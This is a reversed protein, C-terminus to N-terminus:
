ITGKEVAIESELSSKRQAYALREARRQAIRVMAKAFAGRM